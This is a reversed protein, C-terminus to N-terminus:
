LGLKSLVRKIFSPPKGLMSCIANSTDSVKFTEGNRMQILRYKDCDIVNAIFDSEVVISNGQFMAVFQKGDTLMSPACEIPSRLVLKV